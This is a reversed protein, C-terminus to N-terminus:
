CVPERSSPRAQLSQVGRLFELDNLLRVQLLQQLSNCPLGGKRADRRRDLMNRRSFTSFGELLQLPNHNSPVVIRADVHVGAIMAQGRDGDVLRFFFFM